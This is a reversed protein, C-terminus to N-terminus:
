EKGLDRHLVTTAVNLEALRRQLEESMATSRHKGGTCGIALTVQRKGENLYGPTITRIVALMNELMEQAADFKLVYAAVDRSLGTKPRLEPIWFPNPLFRVDFVLDADIPLGHKFGFSMISVTLNDTTDSGFHNAIRQVLQRASLRSTDVVIDARARLDALLHREKAIGDMLRGEGQLPLPRRSSEQRQVIVNDDAELYVLALKKTQARLREIADPLQDFFVRTRVDAVVALRDIGFESVTDALSPLMVPPLNDAVYWGLDEMAHAATRRGAGSLGTIIAVESVM